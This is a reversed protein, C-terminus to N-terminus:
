VKGTESPNPYKWKPMAKLVIHYLDTCVFPKRLCFNNSCHSNKATIM